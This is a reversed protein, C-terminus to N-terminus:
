YAKVNQGQPIKNEIEPSSYHVIIRIDQLEFLRHQLFAVSPPDYFTICKLNGMSDFPGKSFLRELVSTNIM